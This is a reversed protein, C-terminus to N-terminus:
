TFIEFLEFASLIDGIYNLCYIDFSREFKEIRRECSVQCYKCM